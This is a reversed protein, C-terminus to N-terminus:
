TDWSEGQSVIWRLEEQVLAVHHVPDADLLGKVIASRTLPPLRDLHELFLFKISPRINESLLLSLVLKKRIDSRLNGAETLEFFEGVFQRPAINGDLLAKLNHRLALTYQQRTKVVFHRAHRRVHSVAAPSFTADSILEICRRVLVHKSKEAVVEFVGAILKTSQALPSLRTVAALAMPSEPDRTAMMALPLPDEMGHLDLEHNLLHEPVLLRGEGGPVAILDRNRYGEKIDLAVKVGEASIGLAGTM